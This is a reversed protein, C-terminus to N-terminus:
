EVTEYVEYNELQKPPARERGLRRPQEEATKYTHEEDEDDENEDTIKAQQPEEKVRIEKNHRIDVDLMNNDDDLLEIVEGAARLKGMTGFELGYNEAAMMAREKDRSVPEDEIVNEGDILNEYKHQSFYAHIHPYQYEPTSTRM